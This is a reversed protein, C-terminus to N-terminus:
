FKFGTADAQRPAQPGAIALAPDGIPKSAPQLTLGDPGQLPVGAQTQPPGPMFSAAQGGSSSGGGAGAGQGDTDIGLDKRAKSVMNRLYKEGLYDVVKKEIIFEGEEIAAMGNPGNVFQDDPGAPDPAGPPPAPVQGGHSFARAMHQEGPNNAQNNNLDDVVGGMSYAHPTGVKGGHRFAHVKGGRHYGAGSGAGEGGGDGTGGGDGGSGDAGAAGASGDGPGGDGPGGAAAADADTGQQGEEAAATDAAAAAAADADTGQQGEEAAAFDQSAAAAATDAASVGGSGLQTQSGQSVQGVNVDTTGSPDVGGLSDSGAAAAAATAEAETQTQGAAIAMQYAKNALIAIQLPTLVASALKTAPHQLVPNVWDRYFAEFTTNPVAANPDMSTLSDDPDQFGTAGPDAFGPNAPLPNNVVVDDDDSVGPVDPGPDTPSGGAPPPGVNQDVIPSPINTTTSLTPSQFTARRYNKNSGDYFIPQRAM